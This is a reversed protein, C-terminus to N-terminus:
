FVPRVYLYKIITTDAGYTVIQWNGEYGPIFLASDEFDVKNEQCADSVKKMYPYIELMYSSEQSDFRDFIWCGDPFYGKFKITLTDGIWITNQFNVKTIYIRSVQEKWCSSFLGLIFLSLFFNLKM